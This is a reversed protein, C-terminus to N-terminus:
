EDKKEYVGYAMEKSLHTSNLIMFINQNCFSLMQMSLQLQM